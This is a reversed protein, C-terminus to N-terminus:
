SPKHLCLKGHVEAGRVVGTREVVSASKPAVTVELRRSGVIDAVMAAAPCSHSLCAIRASDEGRRATVRDSDTINGVAGAIGDCDAFSNEFPGPTAGCDPDADVIVVIGADPTQLHDQCDSVCPDVVRACATASSTVAALVGPAGLEQEAISADPKQAVTDVVVVSATAGCVSIRRSHAGKLPQDRPHISLWDSFILTSSIPLRSRM